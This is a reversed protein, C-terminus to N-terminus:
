RSTAQSENWLSELDYYERAQATMVHVVVDGLDILVWDSSGRGESGLPMHGAAKSKESVNDALAQAHRSSTGTAIVMTDTVSNRGTVDIVSIDQAKLDELSDIVLKNLAAADM